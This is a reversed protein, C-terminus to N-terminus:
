GHGSSKFSIFIALNPKTVFIYGQFINYGIVVILMITSTIVPLFTYLKWYTAGLNLGGILILIVSFLWLGQVMEKIFNDIDKCRKLNMNKHFFGKYFIFKEKKLIWGNYLGFLGAGLALVDILTFIDGM